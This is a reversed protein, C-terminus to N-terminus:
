NRSLRTCADMPQVNTQGLSANQTINGFSM